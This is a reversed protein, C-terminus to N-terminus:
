LGAFARDLGLTLVLCLAGRQGAPQQFAPFPLRESSFSPPRHFHPTPVALWGHGQSLEMCPFLTYSPLIKKRGKLAFPLSPFLHEGGATHKTARGQGCGRVCVDTHLVESGM